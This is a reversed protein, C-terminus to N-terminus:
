TNINMNRKIKHIQSKQEDEEDDDDDNSVISKTISAKIHEGRDM